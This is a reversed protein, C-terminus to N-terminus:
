FVPPVASIESPAQYNIREWYLRASAPKGRSAPVPEVLLEFVGCNWTPLLPMWSRTGFTSRVLWQILGGHSVCAVCKAGAMARSRLEEWVLIARRWVVQAREADPVGEWSSREFEAHIDPFREKAEDLSLGSFSGTDIESLPQFVTPAALGLAAALISATEAARRLPSSLITQIGSPKLWAGLAAAQARGAEDLPFDRLGQVIKKANAESQGHRIILFRAPAPLSAFFAPDVHSPNDHDM